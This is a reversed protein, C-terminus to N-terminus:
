TYGHSTTHLELMFNILARELRAGDGYYLPFRAGAIKSAREFDLIHLDEGLTWHPKPPFDFEPLSGVTRVLQNDKEDKGPPVSPHPINPIRILIDNLRAEIESLTKELDKIGSSVARMEVVLAEANEGRKKMKAIEDSVVNRQHRRQEIEALIVRRAEDAAQFSDLEKTNGRKELAHHVESLNQRLYKIELM